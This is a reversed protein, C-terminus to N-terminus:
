QRDPQVRVSWQELIRGRLRRRRLRLRLLRRRLFWHSAGLLGRELTSATVGAGIARRGSCDSPPHCVWTGPVWFYGNDPDYAWYGPSWMYGGAPIPPQEYVPLEPPAITISIIQAQSAVPLAMPALAFFLLITLCLRRM